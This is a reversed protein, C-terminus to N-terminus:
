TPRTRAITLAKSLWGRYGGQQYFPLAQEIYRLGKM